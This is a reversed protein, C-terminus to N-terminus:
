LSSLDPLFGTQRIQTIQLGRQVFEAVTQFKNSFTKPNEPNKELNSKDMHEYM